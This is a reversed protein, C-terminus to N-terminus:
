FPLKTHTFSQEPYLFQTEFFVDMEDMEKDYEDYIKDVKEQEGYEKFIKKCLKKLRRKSYHRWDEDIVYEPCDVFDPFYGDMIFDYLSYESGIPLGKGDYDPKLVLDKFVMDVYEPFSRQEDYKAFIM